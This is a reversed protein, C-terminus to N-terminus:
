MGTSAQKNGLTWCFIKIIFFRASLKGRCGESLEILVFVQEMMPALLYSLSSKFKTKPM